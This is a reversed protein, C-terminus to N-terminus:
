IRRRKSSCKPTSNFTRKRAKPAGGETAVQQAKVLAFLAKDYAAGAENENTFYGIHKRKGDIKIQAVWM